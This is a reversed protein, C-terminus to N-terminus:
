TIWEMMGHILSKNNAQHLLHPFQDPKEYASTVSSFAEETLTRRHYTLQTPIELDTPPPIHPTSKSPSRFLRGCGM